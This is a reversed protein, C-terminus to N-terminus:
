GVILKALADLQGKPGKVEDVRCRGVEIPVLRCFRGGYYLVGGGFGEVSLCSTAHSVAEMWTRSPRCLMELEPLPTPERREAVAECDAFFRSLTLSEGFVALVRELSDVRPAVGSRNWLQLTAPAVGSCLALARLSLGTAERCRALNQHVAASVPTPTTPM